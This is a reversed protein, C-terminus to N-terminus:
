SSGPADGVKDLSREAQRGAARGTRWACSTSPQRRESEEEPCPRSPRAARWAASTRAAPSLPPTGMITMQGTGTREIAKAIRSRKRFAMLGAHAGVDVPQRFGALDFDACPAAM